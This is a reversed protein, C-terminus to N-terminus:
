NGKKAIVDSMITAPLQKPDGVLICQQCKKRLPILISPEISQAAEDIIVQM